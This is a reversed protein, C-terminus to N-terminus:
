TLCAKYAASCGAIGEVEGVHLRVRKAASHAVLKGHRNTADVM